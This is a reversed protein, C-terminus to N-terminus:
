IVPSDVRGTPNIMRIQRARGRADKGDEYVIDFWYQKREELTITYSHDESEQDQVYGIVPYIRLLTGLPLHLTRALRDSVDIWSESPMVGIERQKLFIIIPMERQIPTVQYPFDFDIVESDEGEITWDEGQGRQKMWDAVREKLRGITADRPMAFCMPVSGFKCSAIRKSSNERLSSAKVRLVFGMPLNYPIQVLAKKSKSSPSKDEVEELCWYFVTAVDLDRGAPLIYYTVLQALASENPADIETPECVPTKEIAFV